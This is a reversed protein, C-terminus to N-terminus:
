RPSTSPSAHRPGGRSSRTCPAGTPRSVSCGGGPPRSRPVPRSRSSGARDSRGDPVALRATPVRGDGGVHLHRGHQIRRLRRRGRPPHSRRADAVSRASLAGTPPEPRAGAAAPGSKGRRRAGVLEALAELAAPADDTGAALVYVACGAPVLDSPKGPYAFFSVPSLADVLVLTTVGELQLAAFEAFYGLREVEPIGAGRELVSPFTECLLKAGTAEAVRSAAM